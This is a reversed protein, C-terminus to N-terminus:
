YYFIAELEIEVGRSGNPLSVVVTKNYWDGSRILKREGNFRIYYSKGIKSGASFLNLTILSDSKSYGYLDMSYPYSDKNMDKLEVEGNKAVITSKSVTNGCAFFLSSITLVYLIKCM